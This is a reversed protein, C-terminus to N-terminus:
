LFHAGLTGTFSLSNQDVVLTYTSFTKRKDVLFTHITKSQELVTIFALLCLSAEAALLSVKNKFTSTSFAALINRM